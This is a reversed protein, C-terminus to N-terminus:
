SVFNIKTTALTFPCTDMNIPVRPTYSRKKTYFNLLKAKRTNVCLPASNAKSEDLAQPKITAEMDQFM